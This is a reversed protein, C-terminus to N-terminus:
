TLINNEKQVFVNGHLVWTNMQKEIETVYRQVNGTYQEQLNLKSKSLTFWDVIVNGGIRSTWQKETGNCM